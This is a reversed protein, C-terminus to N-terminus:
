IEASGLQTEGEQEGANIAEANPSITKLAAQLQGVHKSEETNIDDIVSAIDEYGEAIATVSLSNYMDITKWEDQIANNIMSALGFEPGMEPAPKVEVELDEKLSENMPKLEDPILALQDEIFKICAPYRAAWYKNFNEVSEKDYMLREVCNNITRKAFDSEEADNLYKVAEKIRSVLDTVLPARQGRGMSTADDYIPANSAETISERYYKTRKGKRPNSSIDGCEPCNILNPKLSRNSKSKTRDFTDENLNFGYRKPPRVRSEKVIKM